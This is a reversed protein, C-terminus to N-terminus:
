SPFHLLPLALWPPAHPQRCVAAGPTHTHTYTHTHIHTHTHTQTNTHAHTHTQTRTLTHALALNSCLMLHTTHTYTQAHTQAYTHSLTHSPLTQAYCGCVEAEPAEGPAVAFRVSKASHRGSSQQGFSGLGADSRPQEETQM